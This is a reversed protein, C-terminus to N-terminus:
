QKQNEQGRAGTLRKSESDSQALSKELQALLNADPSKQQAWMPAVAFLNLAIALTFVETKMFNEKQLFINVGNGV